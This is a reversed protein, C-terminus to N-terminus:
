VHPEDRSALDRGHPAGDPPSEITGFDAREVQPLNYSGDFWAARRAWSRRTSGKWETM